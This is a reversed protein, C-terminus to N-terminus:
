SPLSQCKRRPYAGAKPTSINCSAPFAQCLCLKNPRKTLLSSFLEIVIVGTQRLDQPAGDLDLSIRVEAVDVRDVPLCDNGFFVVAEDGNVYTCELLGSATNM